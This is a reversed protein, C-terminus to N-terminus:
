LVQALLYEGREGVLRAQTTRNFLSQSAQAVVKIYNDTLGTWVPLGELVQQNEWLVPRVSGIASRRFAEELHRALALMREMRGRKVDDPVKPELYAATTGARVSYPFVHMSAFEMRACFAETEAFEEETEGPFGVIVDTTIAAHPLHQRVQAVTSAYLDPTYRRRMRQLVARSGSQLPIHFHPCLRPDEWLRLLRPTIEQPQLSSIRLRPLETEKLLREVLLELSAQSLDFGYSGLQTGTLVVEQYGEAVRERVQAILTELPISRERGRVKPVICYACVQNCGEQIKVMTRTRGFAGPYFRPEEGTACAVLADGRAALVMEVLRRKDRNGVVLGVGEVRALEQPSRQAYCGTAVVLAHPSLRHAARLAQRAKSDAVHTVTCTNVIHVDAQEGPSVVRFGARAFERALAESDAQNLKCGQTEIAVAGRYTAESM